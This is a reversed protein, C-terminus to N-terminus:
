SPFRISFFLYTIFSQYHICCAHTFLFSHKKKLKDKLLNTEQDRIGTLPTPPTKQGDKGPDSAVPVPFQVEPALSSLNRLKPFDKSETQKWM